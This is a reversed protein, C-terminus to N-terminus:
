APQPRTVPAVLAAPRVPVRAGGLVSGVLVAAPISVGVWAALLLPLNVVLGDVLFGEKPCGGAPGNQAGSRAM